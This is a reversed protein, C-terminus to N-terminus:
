RRRFITGLVLGVAGAILLSRGPNHRVQQQLDTKVQDIDLERVYDASSDLWKSAQTGYAALTGTREPQGTKQRIVEAATKLKEAITKKVKNVGSDRGLSSDSSLTNGPYSLGQLNDANDMIVGLSFQCDLV